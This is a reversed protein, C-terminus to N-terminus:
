LVLPIKWGIIVPATRLATRAGGPEHGEAIATDGVAAAVVGAVSHTSNPSKLWENM